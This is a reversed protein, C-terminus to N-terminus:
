QPVPFNNIVDEQAEVQSQITIAKNFMNNHLRSKARNGFNPNQMKIEQAASSASQIKNGEKIVNFYKLGIYGLIVILLLFFLQKYSFGFKM